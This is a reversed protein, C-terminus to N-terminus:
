GEGMEAGSWAFWSAGPPPEFDAVCDHFQKLLAGLRHAASESWVGTGHQAWPPRGGDILGDIYTLTEHGLEDFGSGAVRPAADFGRAELHRLLAHVSTTWPKADRYVIAGRREVTTRHYASRQQLIEVDDAERGGIWPSIDSM